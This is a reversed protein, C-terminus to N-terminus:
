GKRKWEGQIALFGGESWDTSTEGREAVRGVLELEAEDAAVENRLSESESDLTEIAKRLVGCVQSLKSRGAQYDEFALLSSVVEASLECKRRFDGALEQHEQSFLHTARFLSVMNEVRDVTPGKWGTLEELASKRNTRIGDFQAWKRDNVHRVLRHQDGAM